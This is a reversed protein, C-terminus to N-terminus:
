NYILCLSMEVNKLKLWEAYRCHVERIVLEFLLIYNMLLRRRSSFIISAHQIIFSKAFIMNLYFSLDM